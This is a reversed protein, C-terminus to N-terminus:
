ILNYLKTIKLFKIIKVTNEHDPGLTEYLHEPISLATRTDAYNRCYLLIHKVTLAEGCTTCLDPDERRMLHRHTLWTHGIRLRNIIVEHRRNTLYTPWPNISLKIENLKTQSSAWRYQWKELTLAQIVGKIDSLSCTQVSIADPSTIARKAYIDTTENGPIGVHSPIWLLTIIQNNINLLSIQNQIIRSITNPQKTNLISKLASLSDSLILAQDIKQQKVIELAHSIALAEATFISCFNPLKIMKIVNNYYVSAGVGTETKSGDTYFKTHDQYDELISYALNRFRNDM